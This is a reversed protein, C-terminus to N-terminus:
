LAMHLAELSCTVGGPAVAKLVMTDIRMTGQSNKAKEIAELAARGATGGHDLGRKALYLFFAKAATVKFEHGNERITVMRGLVSEYPAKLHRGRPRGAPTGSRGKAFRTSKPPRRYGVNNQDEDEM